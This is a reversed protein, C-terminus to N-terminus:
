PTMRYSYFILIDHSTENLKLFFEGIGGILDEGSKGHKIGM